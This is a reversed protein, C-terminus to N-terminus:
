NLIVLKEYQEATQGDASRVFVKYIYTGRGIPDGYDDRGDWTIGPSRYGTTHVPENITKVLKGSVTFVQITVNFESCAQNHEFYFATNTTFPNPYNLVHALALTASSSVVFDTKATSSNNYVDWVKL